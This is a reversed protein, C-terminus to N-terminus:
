NNQSKNSAITDLNQWKLKYVISYLANQKICEALLYSLVKNSEYTEWIFFYINSPYCKKEHFNYNVHLAKYKTGLCYAQRILMM